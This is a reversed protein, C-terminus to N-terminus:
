WSIEKIELTTEEKKPEEKIKARELEEAFHRDIEKKIYEATDDYSCCTDIASNTSVSAIGAPVACATLDPYRVYEINIEPCVSTSYHEMEITNLKIKNNQMRLLFNYVDGMNRLTEHVVIQGPETIYGLVKTNDNEIVGVAEGFTM